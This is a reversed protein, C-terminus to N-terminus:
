RPLAQPGHSIRVQQQRQQEMGYYRFNVNVKGTMKDCYARFDQMIIEVDQMTMSSSYDLQDVQLELTEISNLRKSIYKLCLIDM